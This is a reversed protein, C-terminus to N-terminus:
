GRALLRHSAFAIASCGAMVLAMSLGSTSPMTALVAGAGAGAVFPATGILASASGAHAPEGQLAGAMANPMVLGLSSLAMFLPIFLVALGGLGSLAVAVLALLAALNLAVGVSLIQRFGYRRM